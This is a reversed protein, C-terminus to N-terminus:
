VGPLHRMLAGKLSQHDLYISISKIPGKTTLSHYIQLNHTHLSKRDGAHHQQVAIVQMTGVRTGVNKRICHLLRIEGRIGFKNFRM